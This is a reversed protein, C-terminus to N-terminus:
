GAKERVFRIFESRRASEEQDIALIEDAGLMRVIEEAKSEGLVVMDACALSAALEARARAPLYADEPAAIVLVLKAGGALRALQSVHDPLMPDCLAAAVRVKEGAARLSAVRSIAEEVTLIKTRTDIM